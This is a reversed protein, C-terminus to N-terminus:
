QQPRLYKAVAETRSRVHLKRYINRVHTHVTQFGISLAYAIEKDADAVSTQNRRVDEEARRLSEKRQEATQREAEMAQRAGSLNARATELLRTEEDAIRTLESIRASTADRRATMGALDNQLSVEGLVVRHLVSRLVIEGAEVFFFKAESAPHM